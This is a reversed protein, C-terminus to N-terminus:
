NYFNWALAFYNTGAFASRFNITITCTTTVDSYVNSIKVNNYSNNSTAITESGVSITYTTTPINYFTTGDYQTGCVLSIRTKYLANLPITFSYNDGAEIDYLTFTHYRDYNLSAYIRTCDLVGSGYQAYLNSSSRTTDFYQYNSNNNATLLAKITEPEMLLSPEHQMMLAVTGAVQPAAYSTGSFCDGNYVEINTGPACIDPKTSRSIIMGNYRSKEWIIGDDDVAGVVISNACLSTTPLAYTQTISNYNGAAVVLSVGYNYSLQEYWQSISTYQNNYTNTDIGISMNIVNVDQDLLWECAMICYAHTDAPDSTDDVNSPLVGACYYSANPTLTSLITYVDSAHIDTRTNTTPYYDVINSYLSHNLPVGMDMIGIKIGSGDAYRKLTSARIMSLYDTVESSQMSAYPAIMTDSISSTNFTIPYNLSDVRNFSDNLALQNIESPSLELIAVPSYRSIYVVDEADVANEIIAQNQAQYFARSQARQESIQAQIEELTGSTDVTSRNPAQLSQTDDALKQTYTDLEDNTLSVMVTYESADGDSISERLDSSIVSSRVTDLTAATAAFQPLSLLTLAMCMAMTTRFKRNRKM